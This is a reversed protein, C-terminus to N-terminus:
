INLLTLFEEALHRYDHHRLIYDRGKKGMAKREPLPMAAVRRIAAAIREPNEPAVSIGCGSEAVLDNAAEIAHIVPKAAMMYDMLKNPSVGFRFLPQRQLGIFLADMRELLPPVARKSVPPLFTVNTLGNKEAWQILGEKEPGQGVLVLQVPDNLLLAAAKLLTALENAVGHAGVYGIVCKGQRNLAALCEAHQDPLPEGNEEWEEICIGNPIHFFKGPALGHALMHEEAKPLISVVRDAKRYASNEAYQMVMIFPHWAPMGGLEMPSLPWLDHVEFIVKAKTQRAIRCVPFIDLPYTSSAIVVDPLGERSLRSGYRYLQGVFCAMNAVRGLGNGRYRPTSLWVYRIGEIEEVMLPGSFEPLITRVHSFSAAVVTVRHGSRVWERALYYPRYEM